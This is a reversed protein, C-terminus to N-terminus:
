FPQKSPSRSDVCLIHRSLLAQRDKQFSISLPGKPETPVGLAGKWSAEGRGGGETLASLGVTEPRGDQPGETDPVRCDNGATM